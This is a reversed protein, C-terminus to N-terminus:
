DSKDDEFCFIVFVSLFFITMIETSVTLTVFHLDKLPKTERQEETMIQYGYDSLM